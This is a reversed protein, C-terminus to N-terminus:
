HLVSTTNETILLELFRYSFKYIIWESQLICWLIDSISCHFRPSALDLLTGLIHTCPASLFGIDKRYMSTNPGPSLGNWRSYWQCSSWSKIRMLDMLCSSLRKRVPFFVLARWRGRGISKFRSSARCATDLERRYGCPRASLISAKAINQYFFDAEAM